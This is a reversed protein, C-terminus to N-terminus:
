PTSYRTYDNWKIEGIPSGEDHVVTGVSFLYAGSYSWWVLCGITVIFLIIPVLVIRKIDTIYDATAQIIRAALKIRTWLCCFMIVFLAMVGWVAYSLYLYTTDNDNHPNDDKLLDNYNQYFLWGLVTLGAIFLIIVTTVIFLACQELLWLFLLSVVFGVLISVLYVPWADVIDGFIEEKGLAKFQTKATNTLINNSPWCFRKGFSHSAQLRLKNCSIVSSNPVLNQQGELLM